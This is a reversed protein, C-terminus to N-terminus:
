LNFYCEKGSKITTQLCKLMSLTLKRDETYGITVEYVFLSNVTGIKQINLYRGFLISGCYYTFYIGSVIQIDWNCPTGSGGTTLKVLM